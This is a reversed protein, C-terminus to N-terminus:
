RELAFFDQSLAIQSQVRVHRDQLSDTFTLPSQLPKLLPEFTLFQLELLGLHVRLKWFTRVIVHDFRQEQLAQFLVIAIQGLGNGLIVTALIDDVLDLSNQISIPLSCHKSCDNPSNQADASGKNKEAEYEWKHEDIPAIVDPFHNRAVVAREGFLATTAV